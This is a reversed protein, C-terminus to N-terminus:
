VGEERPFVDFFDAELADALKMALSVAAENRGTEWHHITVRCVGVKEALASLTLNKLQRYHKIKNQMTKVEDRHSNKKNAM